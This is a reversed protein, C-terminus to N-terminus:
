ELTRPRIDYNPTGQEICVRYKLRLSQSFCQQDLAYAIEDGTWLLITQPAVYRALITAAYTFGSYSFVMGVTAAPRRLLQNRMKAIPEINVRDALDKCEVLCALGNSYIVGDIQEVEEEELVVSYPYTVEADELEFARLILYEFAKGSDWGPTNRAAIAQWLEILQGRDYTQIQQRYEADTAM